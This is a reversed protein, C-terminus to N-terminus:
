KKEKKAEVVFALYAQMEKKITEQCNYDFNYMKKEKRFIVVRRGDLGQLAITKAFCKIQAWYVGSWDM